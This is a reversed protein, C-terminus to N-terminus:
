WPQGKGTEVYSKLSALFHKWGQAVAEPAEGQWGNHDLTLLVETGQPNAQLNWSLTTGVWSPMDHKVCTWRVSQNSTQEDIRFYMHIPTGDKVFHLAAEGGVTEAVEATANWWSRYGIQTTLAQYVNTASAQMRIEDKLTSM